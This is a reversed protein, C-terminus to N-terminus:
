RRLDFRIQKCIACAFELLEYKGAGSNGVEMKKRQECIFPHTIRYKLHTCCSTSFCTKVIESLMSPCFLIIRIGEVINVAIDLFLKTLDFYNYLISLSIALIDFSKSCQENHKLM